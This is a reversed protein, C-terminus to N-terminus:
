VLGFKCFPYNIIHPRHSTTKLIVLKAPYVTYHSIKVQVFNCM